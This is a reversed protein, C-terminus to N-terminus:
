TPMELQTPQILVEQIELSPGLSALHVLTQALDNPDIAQNGSPAGLIATNIPGPCVTVVRVGQYRMELRVSRSMGLLAHKSAVYPAMTGIGRLAADSAVNIVDGGGHTVMKRIAERMVVFAGIVNTDIVRRLEDTTTELFPKHQAIGANNILVDLRELSGILEAAASEDTVELREMRFKGGIAKLAVETQAMSSRDRGTAILKAGARLFAEAAARGVGRSAGTILVVKGSVGM